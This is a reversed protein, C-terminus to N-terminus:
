DRAAVQKATVRGSEVDIWCVYNSIDLASRFGVAFHGNNDPHMWRPTLAPERGLSRARDELTQIGAGVAISDCFEQARESALHGSYYIYCAAAISAAVITALTTTAREVLRAM